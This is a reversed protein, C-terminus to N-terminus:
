TCHARIVEDLRKVHADWTLRAALATAKEAYQAREAPNTLLRVVRDRWDGWNGVPIPDLDAYIEGLADCDSVVPVCGRSCADLCTVSFGESWSTTECPHLLLEAQAMEALVQEHPVSDVVTIGWEPGSMRALAEEIYLARTRLREIPPHYPTVDFGRIWEAVRYFIRLEAHTAARKVAPWGELVRHLGRDPSSCYVVRGPVRANSADATGGSVSAAATPNADCGLENVVWKGPSQAKWRGLVQALHSKSPSCYVDVHQDFGEKCFTFENLWFMCIHVGGCGRLSDPENISITADPPKPYEKDWGAKASDVAGHWRRQEDHAYVAVHHGLKRLGEVIRRWGVESGTRPDNWTEEASRQLCM